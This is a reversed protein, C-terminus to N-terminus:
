ILKNENTKQSFNFVGSFFMEFNVSREYGIAFQCFGISYKFLFIIWGTLWSWAINGLAQLQMYCYQLCYRKWSLTKQSSVSCRLNWLFQGCLQVRLKSATHKHIKSTSGLQHLRSVFNKLLLSWLGILWEWSVCKFYQQQRFTYSM